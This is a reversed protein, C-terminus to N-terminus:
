GQARRARALDFAFAFLRECTPRSIRQTDLVADGDRRSERRGAFLGETSERVLVCDITRARRDALPTPAGNLVRIPRVGAYLGLRERLDIQPTIETGDAYRVGPLGMAGLLIAHAARAADMAVEPLASGTELYCGAGMAHPEFRLPVGGVRGAVTNILALCPTMVESGIGDGAFVAVTFIDNM